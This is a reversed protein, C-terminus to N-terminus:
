EPYTGVLKEDGIKRFALKDVARVKTQARTDDLTTPVPVNEPDVRTSVTLSKVFGNDDGTFFRYSMSFSSGTFSNLLNQMRRPYNWEVM